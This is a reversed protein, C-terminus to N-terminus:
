QNVLIHMKWAKVQVNPTVIEYKFESYQNYINQTEKKMFYKHTILTPYGRNDDLSPM